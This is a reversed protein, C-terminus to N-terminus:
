TGEPPVPTLAGCSPCLAPRPSNAEFGVEFMSAAIIALETESLHVETHNGRKAFVARAARGGAIIAEARLLERQAVTLKDSKARPPPSPASLAAAPTGTGAMRPVRKCKKCTVKAPDETVPDILKRVSLGCDTRDADPQAGHTTSVADGRARDGTAGRPM